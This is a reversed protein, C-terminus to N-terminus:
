LPNSAVEGDPPACRLRHEAFYRRLIGPDQENSALAIYTDPRLLYMADRTLGVTAFSKQWPFVHLILQMSSCSTRLVNSATGYVHVQWDASQFPDFNDGPSLAVWPLRDGGRLSGANGVSIASDRYNVVFQSIARFLYKRAVKIGFLAPVLLPVIRTRVFDAVRGDSTALMFAQDTTAVLTRAFAQRESEYTDLLSDPACNTLVCRLKWALNISDGIGTNM